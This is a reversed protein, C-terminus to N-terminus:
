ANAEATHQRKLCSEKNEGRCNWIAWFPLLRRALHKVAERFQTAFTLVERTGSMRLRGYLRM